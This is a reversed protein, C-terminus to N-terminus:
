GWGQLCLRVKQQQAAATSKAMWPPVSSAQPAAPAGGRAAAAAAAAHVNGGGAAGAAAPARGAGPQAADADAGDAGRTDAFSVVVQTNMDYVEPAKRKSGSSGSRGKEKELAPCRCWM